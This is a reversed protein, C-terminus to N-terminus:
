FITRPATLAKEQLQVNSSGQFCSPALLLTLILNSLTSLTNINTEPIM